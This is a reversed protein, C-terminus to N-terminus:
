RDTKRKPNSRLGEEGRENLQSLIWNTIELAKASVDAAGASVLKNTIGRSPNDAINCSSPVRALWTFAHVKTEAKAFIEALFDVVANDSIGRLLSFKTGENDVFILCRRNSFLELWLIYAVVAALTEAEFIIQKKVLEGLTSRAEADLSLSFFQVESDLVLVGGLGCPLLDDYREYCADTSVLVHKPELAKIERPVNNILLERFLSLFFKDKASLRYKQGEASENLVRLCRKGTRGFLQADAFQMRGRLRQADKQKLHDMEVTALLDRELEAIRSETNKIFARGDKSPGLDFTVGLADCCQGFPM